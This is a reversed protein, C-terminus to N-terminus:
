TLVILQTGGILRRNVSTSQIFINYKDHSAPSVKVEYDPLGLLERAQSGSYTKGTTKEQVVIQKYNQIKEPKTLQYYASGKRYPKSTWSEVFPQIVADKHVPFVNYENTKLQILNNKVATKTLSNSDMQFLNKTSRVGRARAQMFNETAQQMVVGVNKLGAVDTSWLQTNEKPFGFRVAERRCGEDPVLCAFTWNDKLTQTQILSELTYPRHLSDNEKGDTLAYILFAHDAYIEPTLKLDEIAKITADVLATGGNPRYFGKLSPLRMVDMDYILCQIDSRTSFLYVSVRTEQNMEKSRSSLRQIQNDFVEVVEERLHRMSGSSDVVFVIHNIYNQIKSM